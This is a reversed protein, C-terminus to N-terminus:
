IIRSEVFFYLTQYKWLRILDFSGPFLVLIKCYSCIYKKLLKPFGQFFDRMKVKYPIWKFSFIYSLRLGDTQGEPSNLFLLSGDLQLCFLLFCYLENRLLLILPWPGRIFLLFYCFLHGSLGKTHWMRGETRCKQGSCIEFLKESILKFSWGEHVSEIL